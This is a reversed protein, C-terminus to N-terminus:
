SSRGGPCAYEQEPDTRINDEDLLGFSLRVSSGISGVEKDLSAHGMLSEVTLKPAGINM